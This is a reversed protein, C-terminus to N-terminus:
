HYAGLGLRVALILGGIGIGIRLARAPLRRVLAPGIWGGLLFGAALPVVADWRVPGFLAFGIAAATNAMGSVVNKVANVRPLSKDLMATLIVLLLIGAAAGFYGVYVAVAALAAQLRRSHEGGPRATLGSIMPQVILLLSAAGILLPAVAEFASAPTLLLLAAGAGRRGRDARGPPLGAQGARGTGPAVRGGRGGRHLGAGGHQDREREGSAARARAPGSLLRRLRPQAITSAVTLAGAGLLALIALTSVMQGLCMVAHSHHVPPAAVRLIAM